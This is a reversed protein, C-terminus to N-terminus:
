ALTRRGPRASFTAAETVRSSIAATTIKRRSNSQFQSLPGIPRQAEAFYSRSIASCPSRSTFRNLQVGDTITCSRFNPPGAQALSRSVASTSRMSALTRRLFSNAPWSSIGSSAIVLAFTTSIEVLSPLVLQSRDGSLGSSLEPELSGNILWSIM